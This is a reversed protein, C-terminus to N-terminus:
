DLPARDDEVFGLHDLVEGGFARLGGHIELAAHPEDGGAGRDFIVEGFQPVKEVKNIRPKQTRLFSEVATKGNGDFAVIIAFGPLTQFLQQWGNM